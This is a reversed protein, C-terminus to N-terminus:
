LWSPTADSTKLPKKTYPGAVIKKKVWQGVTDALCDGNKTASNANKCKLERLPSTLDTLAGTKLTKLITKAIHRQHINWKFWYNQIQKKM